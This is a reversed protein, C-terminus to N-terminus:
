AAESLRATAAESLATVVRQCRLFGELHIDDVYVVLHLTMDSAGGEKLGVFPHKWAPTVAKFLTPLWDRFAAVLDDLRQMDYLNPRELHHRLDDLHRELAHVRAEADSLLRERDEPFRRLQLDRIRAQAWLRMSKKVREDYEDLTALEQAILAREEASLGGKEAKRIVALLRELLTTMRALRGDLQRERRLASIGWKLQRAADSAPDLSELVSKMTDLKRSLDGLVHPNADALDYLLTKAHAIAVSDPVKVPISVRLDPSPRTLNALKAASLVSNPVYIDAHDETNYLTTVRLGIRRIQCVVGDWVILDGFRFPTDVLLVLGGLINGLTDRLALGVVVAAGGTTLVVTSIDAGLLRLMLIAGVGGIVVPALVDLVPILVDDFSAESRKALRRGYYLITDRTVRWVAWTAVGIRLINAADAVPHKIADSLTSRNTLVTVATLLLFLLVPWQLVGVVVDDIDNPTRRAWWALIWFLLVYAGVIAGAWTLVLYIDPM